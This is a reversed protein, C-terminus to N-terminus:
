LRRGRDQKHDTRDGGARALKGRTPGASAALMMVPAGIGGPASETAGISHVSAQSPSCRRESAISRMASGACTRTKWGTAGPSLMRRAPSLTMAPSVTSERPSRRPGAWIAISREAPTKSAATCGTAARRRSRRRRRVGSRHRAAERPASGRSPGSGSEEGRDRVLAEDGDIQPPARRRPRSRAARARRCEGADVEEQGAAPHADAAGSMVRRTSSRSPSTSALRRRRPSAPCAAARRRPARRASHQPRQLAVRDGREDDEVLEHERGELLHRPAPIEEAGDEDGPEGLRLAM